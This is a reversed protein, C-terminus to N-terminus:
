WACATLSSVNANLSNPGGLLVVRTAKLTTLDSIVGRPVCETPVIYLPAGSKAALVGGALADPYNYGTALYVTGSSTFTARNIAQSATFRDSGTLRNVTAFSKLSNEIGTSVSNPGGSITIQNTGLAQFLQATPTDVSAAGGNVLTIPVGRSGAASGTSLADPFNAGTAVYSRAATGFAYQAVARSAAYRDDGQLRVVSPALTALQAAVAESVSNPGGVIVITKPALRTIEASVAAPLVTPQTLLLPGGQKVAAPAASLADPYNQGTALYAVGAKGPYAKKSIQLAVEYRDAGSIREVAPKAQLQYTDTVASSVSFAGWRAKVSYSHKGSQLATPLALSWDGNTAPTVTYTSSGDITIDIKHRPSAGPLTGRIADGVFSPRYVTPTPVVVSLEWDPVTNSVSKSGNSTLMPFFASIANPQGARNCDGVYTGASGLGFAATGVVAASGSDGPLMCVDTLTLNVYQPVGSHNYVPYSENVVLITGCTWGTTRGSKCVPSGVIGTTMDTITVPTGASLAGQGGGWTSVKPQPNWNSAVVGVDAGSGFRFLSEVPAGIIEGRSPASGAKAQKSEYYYTGTDRNPEICHGSTIFQTQPYPGYRGVFGTSCVYTLGAAVFQFAQGGILDAMATLKQGSYDPVAPAGTEVVAGVEAVSAAADGGTADAAGEPINVVLQTGDLRSGLVEIGEAQLGEVVDSAELAANTRALYDEPSEGLDRQIAESLEAPLEAAQATFAEAPLNSMRPREAAPDPAPSEEVPDSVDPTSGDPTSGDPTSGDPTTGTGGTDQAPDTAPIPAVEAAASTATGCLAGVTVVAAVLLLRGSRRRSPRFM